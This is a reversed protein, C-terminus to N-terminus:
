DNVEDKMDGDPVPFEEEAEFSALDGSQYAKVRYAIAQTQRIFTLSYGVIPAAHVVWLPINMAASATGVSFYKLVTSYAAYVVIAAFILVAIDAIIVVIPRAKQPFIKLFVDIKLHKMQKAGYSIGIFVLWIFLYRALEETWSLSNNFVRRMVVQLMLVTTFVCLLVMCITCEFNEDLWRLTKKLVEGGDKKLLNAIIGKTNSGHLPYPQM